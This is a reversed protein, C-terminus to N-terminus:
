PMDLYQMPEKSVAYIKKGKNVDKIIQAISDYHKGSVVACLQPYQKFIEQRLEGSLCGVLIVKKDKLSDLNKFVEARSSKLFACTNLLVLKSDEVNAIEFNAPLEALLSETDATNKPCGLTIVGIKNKM